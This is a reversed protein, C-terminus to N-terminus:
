GCNDAKIRDLVLGKVKPKRGHKGHKGHALLRQPFEVKVTRRRRKVKLYPMISKDWGRQEALLGMMGM